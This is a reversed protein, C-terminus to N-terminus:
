TNIAEAKFQVRAANWQEFAYRTLLFTSESNLRTRWFPKALFTWGM